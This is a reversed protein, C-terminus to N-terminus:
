SGSRKIHKRLREEPPLPYRPCKPCRVGPGYTAPNANRWVLRPAPTCSAIKPCPAAMRAPAQFDETWGGGRATCIDFGRRALPSPASLKEGKTYRMPRVVRSRGQPHIQGM